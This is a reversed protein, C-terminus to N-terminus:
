HVRAIGKGNPIARGPDTHPSSPFPSTVAECDRLARRDEPESARSSNKVEPFLLKHPLLTIINRARSMSVLQNSGGQDCFVDLLNGHLHLGSSELPM